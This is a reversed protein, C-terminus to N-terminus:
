SALTVPKDADEPEDFSLLLLSIPPSNSRTSASSSHLYVHKSNYKIVVKPLHRALGGRRVEGEGVRRLEIADSYCVDSSSAQAARNAGDV